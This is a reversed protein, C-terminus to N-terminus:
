ARASDSREGVFPAARASNQAGIIDIKTSDLPARRLDASCRCLWLHVPPMTTERFPKRTQEPTTVLRCARPSLEPRLRPSFKPRTEIFRHRHLNAGNEGCENYSGGDRAPSHKNRCCDIGGTRNPGVDCPLLDRAPRLVVYIEKKVARHATFDDGFRHQAREDF